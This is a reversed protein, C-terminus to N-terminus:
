FFTSVDLYGDRGFGFPGDGSALFVALEGRKDRPRERFGESRNTAAFLTYELYVPIESSSFRFHTVFVPDFRKHVASFHFENVLFQRVVSREDGRLNRSIFDDIRNQQGFGFVWQASFINFTTELAFKRLLLPMGIAVCNAFCGIGGSGPWGAFVEQSSRLSQALYV